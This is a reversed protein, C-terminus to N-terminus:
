NAFMYGHMAASGHASAHGADSGVAEEHDSHMHPVVANDAVMDDHGIGCGQTSMDRQAVKHNHPTKGGGVLIRPDAPMGKDPAHGPDIVVDDWEAVHPAIV